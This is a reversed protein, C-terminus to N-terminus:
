DKVAKNRCEHLMAEIQNSCINRSKLYAIDRTKSFCLKDFNKARKKQTEVDYRNENEIMKDSESITKKNM